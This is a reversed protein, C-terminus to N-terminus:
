FSYKLIIRLDDQFLLDMLQFNLLTENNQLSFLLLSLGLLMFRLFCSPHLVLLDLEEGEEESQKQFIEEVGFSIVEVVEEKSLM